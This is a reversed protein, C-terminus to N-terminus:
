GFFVPIFVYCSKEVFTDMLKSSSDRMKVITKRLEAAADGCPLVYKEFSSIKDFIERLEVHFSEERKKVDLVEYDNLKSFDVECKSKFTDHRTKIEFRLGEACSLLNQVKEQEALQIEKLRKLRPLQKLGWRPRVNDSSM